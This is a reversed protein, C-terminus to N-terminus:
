KSLATPIPRRMTSAPPASRARVSRTSRRVVVFPPQPSIMGTPASTVGDEREKAATKRRLRKVKETLAKIGVGFEKAAARLAQDRAAADTIAAIKLAEGEM